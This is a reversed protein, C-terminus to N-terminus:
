KRCNHEKWHAYQKCNTPTDGIIRSKVRPRKEVEKPYFVSQIASRIYVYSLSDFKGLTNEIKEMIAKLVVQVTNERVFFDRNGSNIWEVIIPIIQAIGDQSIRKAALADNLEKKHYEKGNFRIVEDDKHPKEKVKQLLPPQKFFYRWFELNLEDDSTVRCTSTTAVNEPSPLKKRGTVGWYLELFRQLAVLVKKIEPGGLIDNPNLGDTAYWAAQFKNIMDPGFVKSIMDDKEFILSYLMDRGQKWLPSWHAEFPIVNSMDALTKQLNEATKSNLFIMRGESTAIRNQIYEFYENFRAIEEETEKADCIKKSELWRIEDM